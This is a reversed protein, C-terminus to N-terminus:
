LWQARALSLKFTDNRTVIKLLAITEPNKQIKETSKPHGIHHISIHPHSADIESRKAFINRKKTTLNSNQLSVVTKQVWMVSVSVSGCWWLIITKDTIFYPLTHNRLYENGLELMMHNELPKLTCHSDCEAFSNTTLTKGLSKARTYIKHWSSKVVLFSVRKGCSTKNSCFITFFISVM